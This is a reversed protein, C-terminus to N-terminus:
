ALNIQSIQLSATQFYEVFKVRIREWTLIHFYKLIKLSEELQQISDFHEYGSSKSKDPCIVRFHWQHGVFDSFVVQVANARGDNREIRGDNREIGLGNKELSLLQTNDNEGRDFILGDKKFYASFVRKVDDWQMEGVREDYM